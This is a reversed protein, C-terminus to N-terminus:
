NARRRRVIARWHQESTDYLPVLALSSAAITRIMAHMNQAIIIQDQPLLDPDYEELIKRGREFCEAMSATITNIVQENTQSQEKAARYMAVADTLARAAYDELDEETIDPIIETPM